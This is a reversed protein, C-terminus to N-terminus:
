SHPLLVSRRVASMGRCPIMVWFDLIYFTSKWTHISENSNRESEEARVYISNLDSFKSGRVIISLRHQLKKDLVTGDNGEGHRPAFNRDCRNNETGTVPVCLLTM